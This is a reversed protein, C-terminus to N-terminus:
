VGDAPIQVIFSTGNERSSEVNIKGNYNKIIEGVITLGLGCGKDIDKTTYFPEFISDAKESPIGCGTDSIKLILFGDFYKAHVSIKGGQDIADIANRVLNGIVLELGFDLIEPIGEELNKEVAIGKHDFDTQRASLIRDVANYVNIKKTSLKENRSCALLNRVINAMRDLGQKIELLYGQVVEDNKTKELCLNTYRMVGDLPNNFEHAIGGALKGLTALKEKLVIQKKLYAAEQDSKGLQHKLSEAEQIVTNFKEYLLIRQYNLAIQSALFDLLETEEKDFQLG